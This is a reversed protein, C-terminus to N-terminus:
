IFFDTDSLTHAGQSGSSRRRRNVSGRLINVERERDRESESAGERETEGKRGGSFHALKKIAYSLRQASLPTLALAWCCWIHAHM